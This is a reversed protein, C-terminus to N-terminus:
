VVSGGYGPRQRQRVLLILLAIAAGIWPLCGPWWMYHLSRGRWQALWGILVVPLNCLPAVLVLAILIFFLVVAQTTLVLILLAVVMAALTGGMLLWSRTRAAGPGRRSGLIVFAIVAGLCGGLLAPWWLYHLSRGQSQAVLGVTVVPLTLLVALVPWYVVVFFLVFALAAEDSLTWYM